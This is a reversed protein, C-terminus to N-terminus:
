ERILVEVPESLVSADGPGRRRQRLGSRPRGELALESRLVGLCERRGPQLQFALDHASGLLTVVDVERSDPRPPHRNLDGLGAVVEQADLRASRRRVIDVRQSRNTQVALGHALNLHHVARFSAPRNRIGPAHVGMEYGLFATCWPENLTIWFDVKDGLAAFCAAAYDSFHKATDRAPWGGADELPQPLDWHYLTVAPRIGAALLADILRHYYDFGKPNLKGTGEPFIRPWALSFRYAGVGLDRMLKVDEAYRHFQDSAVDGTHGHKVKGPTRCFTDWISPGRGDENAAGEVQYSATATGWLFDDPFHWQAM